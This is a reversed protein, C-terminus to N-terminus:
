RLRRGCIADFYTTWSGFAKFEDNRAITPVMAVTRTVRACTTTLCCLWVSHSKRYSHTCRWRQWSDALRTKSRGDLINARVIQDSTSPIQEDVTIKRPPSLRLASKNSFKRPAHARSRCRRAVLRM